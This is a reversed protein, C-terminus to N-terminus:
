IEGVQTKYALDKVEDRTGQIKDNTKDFREQVSRLAEGIMKNQLQDVLDQFDYLTQDIYEFTKMKLDLCQREATSVLENSHQKAQQTIEHQDVLMEAQKEADKILLDYEQKAEDIIRQREAMVFQAQQIEDPLAQRIEKLIELMEAKDVMVKNTLPVGTSTDCIEEIETLLDLIRMM